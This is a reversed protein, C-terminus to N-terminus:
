EPPPLESLDSDDDDVNDLEFQLGYMKGAATIAVDWIGKQCVLRNLDRTAIRMLERGDGDPDEAFTMLIYEVTLPLKKEQDLYAPGYLRQLVPDCVSKIQRLFKWAWRHLVLYPFSFEFMEATLAMALPKLLEGPKLKGGDTAKKNQKQKQIEPDRAGDAKVFSVDNESHNELYNSGSIIYDVNEPTLSVQGSQGLYREIFISSVPVGDKIGPPGSRSAMDQHSKSQRLPCGKHATIASASYGTQLLFKNLYEDKNKPPNGVFFNSDSLLSRVVGMDQWRNVLLGEEQLTNYLHAPYTVSGWANMVAIGIEHM